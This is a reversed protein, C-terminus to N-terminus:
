LGALLVGALQAGEDGGGFCGSRLGVFSRELVRREIPLVFESSRAPAGTLLAADSMPSGPGSPRKPSNPPRKMGSDSIGAQASSSAANRVAHLSGAKRSSHDVM